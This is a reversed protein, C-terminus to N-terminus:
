ANKLVQLREKIQKQDSSKALNQFSFNLPIKLYSQGDSDAAPLKGAQMNLLISPLLLKPFNLGKDRDERFKVFDERSTKQNLHVNEEKCSKITSQFKLERGGPQYDHGMFVQSSEDLAYLKQVSSFLTAADGDPFDCRGVGFDPMFLTDGVFLANNIKICFCAPTHGPTNIFSISQDGLSLSDGEQLLLDFSSSDASIGYVKSFTSIVKEVNIHIGSKIKPFHTKLQHTGSIHDAHIHTDISYLPKLEYQKIYTILKDVAVSSTTASAWDFSLVPDIILANKSEKDWVIYSLTSSPEDYFHQIQVNNTM